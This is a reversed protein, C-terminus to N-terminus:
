QIWLGRHTNITLMEKSEEEVEVQLYAETFDIQTFLQRGNLKTFVDEATPLPHQHLQLADNLGTSFDGCLRIQGSKKKVVVIPTAWESHEVSIRVTADETSHLGAGDDEDLKMLILDRKKSDLLVSDRIVPGYREEDSVFMQVDKSLQDYQDKSVDQVTTRQMPALTTLLTKMEEHQIRMQEVMAVPFNELQSESAKGETGRPMKLLESPSTQAAEAEEKNQIRPRSRSGRKEESDKTPKQQTKKGRSRQYLKQKTKKRRSGQDGSTTDKISSAFLFM